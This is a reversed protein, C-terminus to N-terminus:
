GTGAGRVAEPARAVAANIGAVFPALQQRQAAPTADWAAEAARGIGLTRCLRDVSLAQPGRSRPLGVAPRVGTGNCRGSGTRPGARLWARVLADGASEAFCHPIDYRDRIIEVPADLGAVVTKGRRQPGQRLQLANAITSRTLARLLGGGQRLSLALGRRDIGSRAETM